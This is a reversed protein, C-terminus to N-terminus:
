ADVQDYWGEPMWRDGEWTVKNLVVNKAAYALFDSQQQATATGGSYMNLNFVPSLRAEGAKPVARIVTAGYGTCVSPWVAYRTQSGEHTFSVFPTSLPTLHSVSFQSGTGGPSGTLFGAPWIDRPDYVFCDFEEGSGGWRCRRETIGGSAPPDVARVNLLDTGESLVTGSHLDLHTRKCVQGGGGCAVWGKYYNEGADCYKAAIVEAVKIGATVPDAREVHNLVRLVENNDIQWLGVGPNWFAREYGTPTRHSYLKLSNYQVGLNDSRSLALPSVAATGGGALEHVPISLLIAALRNRTLKGRLKAPDTSVARSRCADNVISGDNFVTEAAHLVGALVDKAVRYKGTESSLPFCTLVFRWERDEVVAASSDASEDSEDDASGNTEGGSSDDGSRDDDDEDPNQPRIEAFEGGHTGCVAARAAKASAPEPCGGSARAAGSLVVSEAEDYWVCRPGEALTTCMVAPTVRIGRSTPTARRSVMFSYSTGAELGTYTASGGKGSVTQFGTLSNNAGFIAVMWSHVTSEAGFWLTVADSAAACVPRGPAASPPDPTADDDDGDDDDGDDDETACRATGTDGWVDDANAAQVSVTYSTSSDLSEFTHSMAGAKPAVWGDGVSVQYKVAGEPKTWTAEISSSAAEGCSVSPAAPATRCYGGRWQGAVTGKLALVGIFYRTGSLLGTFTTRTSTTKNETQASNPVALQIKASYGTAGTVGRWSFTISSSTVAECMLGTPAPLSASSTPCTKARHSGWGATNGARVYM